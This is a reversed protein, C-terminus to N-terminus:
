LIKNLEILHSRVYEITGWLEGSDRGQDVLMDQIKNIAVLEARQMAATILKKERDTLDGREAIFIERENAIDQAATLLLPQEPQKPMEGGPTETM